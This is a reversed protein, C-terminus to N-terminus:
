LDLLGVEGLDPVQPIFSSISNVPCCFTYGRSYRQIKWDVWSLKECVDNCHATVLNLLDPSKM